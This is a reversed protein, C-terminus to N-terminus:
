ATRPPSPNISDVLTTLDFAGDVPPADFIDYSVYEPTGGGGVSYPKPQFYLTKTGDGSYRRIDDAQVFFLGGTYVNELDPEPAGPYKELPSTRRLGGTADFGTVLLVYHGLPPQYFNFVAFTIGPLFNSIDTAKWELVHYKHSM